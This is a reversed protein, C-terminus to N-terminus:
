ENDNLLRQMYPVASDKYRDTNAMNVHYKEPYRTGLTTKAQNLPFISKVQSNASKTCKRAFSLCLGERRDYLSDLGLTELANAYSLYDEQLIIRCANKQVRELDTINELTLRSHWVQCSQELHSRIYLIYINKLDETPVSFDVLKHLLRMRGNAKKVLFDTNSDWDLKNNIVVGLLKTESITELVSNEMSARTGFQLNKTFNFVMTKSKEKNLMMKNAKTWDSISNLYEQTLMNKPDLFLGDAPIDSAVHQRFNYSALGITLLNIVELISLDDIFKFKKDPSIDDTNNNTQSLYELIGWLAGQPGGGNLKRLSSVVGHWKVVMKRNQFYNILLPILSKRVGNRIFSEIGLRPCQRDFAQKWDVLTCFTAFKKYVSNTDVSRLIEDIMKILYHNVSVGKENGYQSPDRTQKMDSLMLDGIIKETTKSFNLLGSIKRLKNLKKPPYEKPVPTVTEIKWINAYEGRRVSCNIIDALPTSLEVAFEKIISAPVDDKVTSAKTRIKKLYEYVQHPQLVPVPTDVKSSELNIDSANLPEYENSIKSFNDAIAEAQDENSLHSIEDVSVEETRTQDHSSMRKLKSYWQGPASTKLDEVINNYYNSKAQRCKVEFLQNLRKWKPSKRHKYFERKKKRDIEKIEPTVWPQDESTFTTTKEPLFNNLQKMVLHQLAAAKEHASKAETVCEWKETVIWQGMREIGSRPLPRFTVAKKLRAPNNNISDIPKMFPMLHDSPSGDKDPDNDLPPLVVPTQYYKSLNTIIPDLIQDPNLRTPSEVMQKLKPSLNLISDLKLENTDGALIFFLGSQFKSNLLHYSEAIHDLLLTKKVSNPKSYISAVAIKKVISRPTVQKPTLMAWTIEVGWPINILSNTLNEVHYKSDNIILAPRGGKGTRQHVNSIVQYNELKIINDLTLTEREWSESMFLLDVQLEEVLSHFEDVKNYVSRPNLNLVSPLELAELVNNSRKVRKNFNDRNTNRSKVPGRESTFVPIPQGNKSSTSSEM